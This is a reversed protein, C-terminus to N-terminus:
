GAAVEEAGLEMLRLLETYHLHRRYAKLLPTVLYDFEPLTRAPRGMVSTGAFADPGPFEDELRRMDAEFAAADLDTEGLAERAEDREGATAESPWRGTERRFQYAARKICNARYGEFSLEHLHYGQIGTDVYLDMCCAKEWRRGLETDSGWAFAPDYLGFREYAEALCSLNCTVFWQYDGMFRPRRRHLPMYLAAAEYLYNLLRRRYAAPFERGGLLVCRPNFGFEEHAAWHQALATRSLVADENIQMIVTGEAARIGANRALAISAQGIEVLRLRGGYRPQWADILGRLEALGDAEVGNAVALVEYREPAFTQNALGELCRAFVDFRSNIPIVVSIGRRRASGGEAARLLVDLRAGTARCLMQLNARADACQPDARLARVYYGRAQDVRGQAYSVTGADNLLGADDPRQDLLRRYCALAGDLDGRRYLEEAQARSTDPGSM